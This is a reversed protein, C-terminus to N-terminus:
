ILDDPHPIQVAPTTTETEGSKGLFVHGYIWAESTPPELTLKGTAETRPEIIRQDTRPNYWFGVSEPRADSVPLAATARTGPHPLLM